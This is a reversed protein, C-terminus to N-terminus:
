EEKLRAYRAKADILEPLDADANKWLGRRIAKDFRNQETSLTIWCPLSVVFELQDIAADFEGSMVYIHALNEVRFPGRM